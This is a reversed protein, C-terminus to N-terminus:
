TLEMFHSEWPEWRGSRRIARGRQTQVAKEKEGQTPSRLELEGLDGGGATKVVRLTPLLHSFPVLAPIEPSFLAFLSTVALIKTPEILLESTQM